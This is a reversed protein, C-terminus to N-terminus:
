QSEKHVHDVPDHAHALKHTELHDVGLILNPHHVHLHTHADTDTLVPHLPLGTKLDIEEWTVTGRYVKPPWHFMEKRWGYRAAWSTKFASRVGGLTRYWPSTKGGTESYFLIEPPM